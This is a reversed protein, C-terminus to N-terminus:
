AKLIDINFGQIYYGGHPYHSTDTCHALRHDLSNARYNTSGLGHTHWESCKECWVFVTPSYKPSYVGKVIMFPEDPHKLTKFFNEGLVEIATAVEPYNKKYQKKFSKLPM